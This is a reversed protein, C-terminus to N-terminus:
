FILYKLELNFSSLLDKSHYIEDRVNSKRILANASLRLKPSIYYEFGFSPETFYMYTNSFYKNSIRSVLSIKINTRTSPYYSLQISTLTGLNNYISIFNALYFSFDIQWNMKIPKSYTLSFYYNLFNPEFNNNIFTTDTQQYKNELINYYIKHQTEYFSNFSGWYDGLSYEIGSRRSKLNGYEWMDSITNFYSIDDDNILDKAKLISDLITLDEIKKLRSDFFRKNHQITITESIETIEAESPIRKLRGQKQLEELIYITQRADNVNEIRGFGIQTNFDLNFTSSFNKDMKTFSDEFNTTTNNVNIFRNLLSIELEQAIYFKKSLYFHNDSNLSLGGLNTFSLIDGDVNYRSNNYYSVSTSGKYKKSNCVFGYEINAYSSYTSNASSDVEFKKDSNSFVLFGFNLASRKYFPTKYDKLNYNIVQANLNFSVLILISLLLLFFLKKM